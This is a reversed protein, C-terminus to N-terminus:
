WYIANHIYKNISAPETEVKRKWFYTCLPYYTVIKPSPLPNKPLTYNHIHPALDGIYTYWCKSTYGFLGGRVFPLLTCLRATCNAARNNKVHFMSRCEGHRGHHSCQLHSPLKFVVHLLAVWAADVERPPLLLCVTAMTAPYEARVTKGFLHTGVMYIFVQMTGSGSGYTKARGPDPGTIIQVSGSGEM